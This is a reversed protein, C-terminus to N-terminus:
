SDEAEELAARAEDRQRRGRRLEEEAEELAAATRRQEEEAEEFANRARALLREAEELQEGASSLKEQAETHERAATRRGARAAAVVKEAEDLDMELAALDTDKEGEVEGDDEPEEDEPQEDEDPEEEAVDEDGADAAEGQEVDEDTVDEDGTEEVDEREPVDEVEEEDERRGGEIRSLVVGTSTRVVADAVDVEGFGSYSLARTLSGSTVVETAAPDALAAVATDRVEAEVAATLTGGAHERAAGVWAALVEDRDTRLAALAAADLTSQAHRMRAGVDELRAVVPDGARVLANVAAASVSPKRLSSVTRAVERLGESRLRSVWEKRTAVFEAPDVGYVAHVARALAEDQAADTQQTM